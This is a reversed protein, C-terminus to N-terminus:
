WVALDDGGRARRDAMDAVKPTASLGESSGGSAEAADDTDVNGDVGGDDKPHPGLSDQTWTRMRLDGFMSTLLSSVNTASDWEQRCEPPVEGSKPSSSLLADALTKNLIMPPILHRTMFEAPVTFMTNGARKLSFARIGALETESFIEKLNQLSFIIDIANNARQVLESM